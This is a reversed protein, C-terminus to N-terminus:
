AETIVVTPSTPPVNEKSEEAEAVKMAAKKGEVEKRKKEAWERSAERGKESAETRAKKAAAVRDFPKADEKKPEIKFDSKSERKKEVPRLPNSVPKSISGTRRLTAAKNERVVPVSAKRKHVKPERQESQSMSPRTRQVLTSARKQAAVVAPKPKEVSQINGVSSRKHATNAAPKGVPTQKIVSPKRPPPISVGSMRTKKEAGARAANEEQRKQREEKQAKLKDKLAESPLSFTPKTPAKTSKALRPPTHLAVISSRQKSKDGAEASTQDTSQAMSAVSKSSRRDLTGSRTSTSSLRAPGVKPLAKVNINSTTRKYRLGDVRETQTGGVTGAKKSNAKAVSSAHAEPLKAPSKKLPSTSLPKNTAEVLADIHEISPEQPKVFLAELQQAAATQGMPDDGPATINETQGDAHPSSLKSSATTKSENEIPPTAEAQTVDTTALIQEEVDQDSVTEGDQPESQALSTGTSVTEIAHTDEKESASDDISAAVPNDAHSQKRQGKGKKTGKGTGKRTGKGGRKTSKGNKGEGKENVAEIAVEIDQVANSTLEILAPRQSDKSTQAPEDRGDTATEDTAISFDPELEEAKAAARTHRPM